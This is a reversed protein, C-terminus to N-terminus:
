KKRGIFLLVGCHYGSTELITEFVPDYKDLHIKIDQYDFRIPHLMAYPDDKPTSNFNAENTLETGLIIIGKPTLNQYISDMCKDLNFVHDLVNISIVMDVPEGIHCEELPIPYQEANLNKIVESVPRGLGIYESLLPDNLLVREPKQRLAEMVYQINKAFPGCGVEMISKISENEIFKYNQFNNRWWSNRDEPGTSTRWINLEMQQSEAFWAEKPIERYRKLINM